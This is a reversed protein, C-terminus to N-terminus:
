KQCAIEFVKFNNKSSLDNQNNLKDPAPHLDYSIGTTTKKKKWNKVYSDFNFKM